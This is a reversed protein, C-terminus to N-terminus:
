GSHEIGKKASSTTYSSMIYLSGNTPFGATSTFVWHHSLIAQELSILMTSNRLSKEKKLGHQFLDLLHSRLIENEDEVFTAVSFLSAAESPVNLELGPRLGTRKESM